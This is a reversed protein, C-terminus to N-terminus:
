YLIDQLTEGGEAGGLEWFSGAGGSASGKQKGKLLSCAELLHIVSCFCSVIFPFGEYQPQVLSGWLLFLTKPAPLLSLSM